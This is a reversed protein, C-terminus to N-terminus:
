VKEYNPFSLCPNLWQSDYAWHSAARQNQQVLIPVAEQPVDLVEMPEEMEIITPLKIMKRPQQKNINWSDCIGVKKKKKEKEKLIAQNHSGEARTM